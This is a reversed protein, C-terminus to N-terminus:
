SGATVPPATPPKAAVQGLLQLLVPLISQTFVGLLTGPPLGFIHEQQAMHAQLEVANMQPM